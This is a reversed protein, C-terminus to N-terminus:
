ATPTMTALSVNGCKPSMSSKKEIRRLEDNTRRKFSDISYIFSHFRQKTTDLPVCSLDFCVVVFIVCSVHHIDLIKHLHWRVSLTATHM